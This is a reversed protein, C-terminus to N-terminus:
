GILRLKPTESRICWELVRKMKKGAAEFGFSVEAMRRCQQKLADRKTLIDFWCREMQVAFEKVNRPDATYVTYPCGGGGVVPIGSALAERIVRTAIVHPTILMDVSRYLEQLFDIKSWAHGILGKRTLCGIYMDMVKKPQLGFLHVKAGDVKEAFISAAALVNFPTTDERWVDAILINPNGGARGFEFMPGRPNFDELDVMAPVHFIKQRPLINSWIPVFEDWFTVFGKYHPIMNTETLIRFIPTKELYDLLFSNEPRGHMAMLSPKQLMEIDRPVISHRMIVDAERAWKIPVTTVGKYTAGTVGPKERERGYDIFQADIGQSREAKILDIVTAFQGSGSPVFMCFHAIKISMEIEEIDEEM